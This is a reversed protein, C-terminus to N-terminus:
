RRLRRRQTACISEATINIIERAAVDKYSAVVMPCLADSMDNQFVQWATQVTAVDIMVGANQEGEGVAPIYIRGRGSRGRHGTTFKVIGAVQVIAEGQGGGTFPLGEGTPQTVGATTGDLPIVDITTILYTGSTWDWMARKIHTTLATAVGLSDLSPAQFHMVNHANRGSSSRWNLTARFVDPIVPLPAM